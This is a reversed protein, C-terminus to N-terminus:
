DNLSAALVAQAVDEQVGLHPTALALRLGQLVVWFEVFSRSERAPDQGWWRKLLARERAWVEDIIAAPRDDGAAGQSRAVESLAFWARVGHREAATVPLRPFGQAVLSHESWEIWRRGVASTVWALTRARSGRQALASPTVKMWRALAGMSLGDIGTGLLVHLTADAVVDDYRASDLRLFPDPDRVPNWM